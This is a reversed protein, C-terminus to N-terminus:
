INKKIRKIWENQNNKKKKKPSPVEANRTAHAPAPAIRMLRKCSYFVVFTLPSPRGPREALICRMSFLLRMICVAGNKVEYKSTQTYFARLTLSHTDLMLPLSRFLSSLLIPPPPSHRM